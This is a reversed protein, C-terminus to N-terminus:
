LKWGYVCVLVQELMEITARLERYEQVLHPEPPNYIDISGNTMAVLAFYEEIERTRRVFALVLQACRREQDFRSQLRM